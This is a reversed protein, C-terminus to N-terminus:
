GAKGVRREESRARRVEQEDNVRVLFRDGDLLGLLEPNWNDGDDIRVAIRIANVERNGAVVVCATGDREVAIERCTGSDVADLTSLSSGTDVDALSHSRRC